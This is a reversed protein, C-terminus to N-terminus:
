FIKKVFIIIALKLTILFEYLIAVPGLNLKM